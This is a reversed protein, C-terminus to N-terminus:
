VDYFDKYWGHAIKSVTNRNIHTLKSIKTFSLETSLLKQVKLVKEKSTFNPNNAGCVNAHNKSILKRTKLSVKLGLRSNVCKKCVNYKPKWEDVLKQEYYSLEEKECYLITKFIFNGKGYRNFARQLLPHRNTNKNLSSLHHNERSILDTSAGIYIEDNIINKIKYIGCNYKKM